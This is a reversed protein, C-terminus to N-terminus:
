IPTQNPCRCQESEKKPNRNIALGGDLRRNLM